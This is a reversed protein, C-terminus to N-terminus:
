KEEIKVFSADPQSIKLLLELYVTECFDKVPSRLQEIRVPPCIRCVSMDFRITAKRLQKLFTGFFSFAPPTPVRRQLLLRV